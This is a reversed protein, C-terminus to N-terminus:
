LKQVSNLMFNLSFSFFYVVKGKYKGSGSSSSASRISLKQYISHNRGLGFNNSHTLLHVVGHHTNIQIYKVFYFATIHKNQNGLYIFM